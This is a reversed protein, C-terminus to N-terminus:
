RTIRQLEKLMDLTMMSDVYASHAQGVPRLGLEHVADVLKYRRPSENHKAMKYATFVHMACEFTCDPMILDYKANTQEFMRLDYEANYAIVMKNHLIQSIQPYVIDWTPANELMENTIGHKEVAKNNALMKRKPKIRSNFLINGQIDIITLEIIQASQNLGTTETDLIVSNPTLMKELVQQVQQYGYEQEPSFSPVQTKPKFLFILVVIVIILIIWM